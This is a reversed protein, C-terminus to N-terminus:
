GVVEVAELKCVWRLSHAAEGTVNIRAAGNTTDAAVAAAWTTAGADAYVQTVTSGVVATAAANAGRRVLARIDYAACDGTANERVVLHGRISFASSNPLVLQNTTGAAANTTTVAETTADTTDSRLIIERAQADGTAAFQGNAFVDVGTIGRDTAREGGARSNSGTASNNQGNTIGSGTGGVTNSVGGAIACYTASANASNSQGGGIACAYSNAGHTNSRGGATTAYQASSNISNGEGGGIASYAGACNCNFGGAVTGCTQSATNQAGGGICSSAGSAVETAAVRQQQWDVANTGRKNGGTATGGPIQALIAGTGKKGYVGDQNTTGGSPILSSANITNNPSSTNLASTFGTLGGGASALATGAARQYAVCRWNGSGESVFVACDNAATTINAGTPLILSTTNHTLTLAGAFRVIRRAGAQATGLATITTTGTVHVFNGAAGGINTTAASAIDAAKAEDLASTLAGGTFSGGGGASVEVVDSVGAAIFKSAGAAITIGTQGSKKLTLTQATNNIVLMNPFRAPFVVDRGATLTSPSDTLRLVSALYEDRVLTRNADTTFEVTVLAALAADIDGLADNVPVSVQTVNAPLEQLGINTTSM